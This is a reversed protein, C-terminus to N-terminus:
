FTSIILIILITLNTRWTYKALTLICHYNLDKMQSKKTIVPNTNIGTHTKWIWILIVLLGRVDTICVTKMPNNMDKPSCSVSTLLNPMTKNVKACNLKAITFKAYHSCKLCKLCRFINRMNPSQSFHSPSIYQM